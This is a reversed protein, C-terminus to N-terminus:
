GCIPLPVLLSVPPVVVVVFDGVTVEVLSVDVMTVEVLALHGTGQTCRGHYAVTLVGAVPPCSHVWSTHQTVTGNGFVHYPFSLACHLFLLISLYTM